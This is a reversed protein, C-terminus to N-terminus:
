AGQFTPGGPGLRVGPRMHSYAVRDLRCPHAGPSDVLLVEAAIPAFDALFHVTSKVALIRQERPEVGLHRFIALDLCQFRESSVLVRVDASAHQVRLLAMPGLEAQGGGYMAGTFTFRGDSLAEVAFDAEFPATGGAPYRGGLPLRITAGCGAAHTRATAEPDWLLALVAGQVEAAVLARLLGTTDSSGGGGPNDQVDALVVPGRGEARIVEAARVAETEGLLRDEFEPEIRCMTEYLGAVADRVAAADAGYAVVAPGSDQIDAAPFGMALDLCAIGDGPLERLGEYIRQLPPRTTPQSSLPVLYPLQRWAREFPRESRLLEALLAQARAGTEAMDIHPYTRFITLVSANDVMDSTLNAHFDLSVAVPLDPGVVERVRRLLTGEGDELSETVMAGHLDLYVGDLPGARKLGECIMAAIREFAADSVPGAPEASAWVLPVVQWGDAAAMFGSIPVNLGAFVEPIDAGRTLGPWSDAKVFDEFSTPFPAFTNTEHQFGAIAIRPTAM